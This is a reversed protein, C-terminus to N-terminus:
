RIHPAPVNLAYVGGRSMGAFTKRILPKYFEDNWQQKTGYNYMHSYEELTYYPLSTFVCDYLLGDYDVNIANSLIINVLTNSHKGLFSALGEYPKRLNLNSDIGIYNEVGVACAAVMRNGFGATPDLVRKPRYTRFFNIANWMAFNGIYGYYLNFVYKLAHL